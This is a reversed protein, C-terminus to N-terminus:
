NKKECDIDFTVIDSECTKKNVVICEVAVYLKMNKDRCTRIKLEGVLHKHMDYHQGLTDYLAGVVQKIVKKTM